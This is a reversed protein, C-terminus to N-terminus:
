AEQDPRRIFSASPTPDADEVKAEGTDVDRMMAQAILGGRNSAGMGHWYNTAAFSALQAVATRGDLEDRRAYLLDVTRVIQDVPSPSDSLKELQEFTDDPLKGEAHALYRRIVKRAGTIDEIPEM